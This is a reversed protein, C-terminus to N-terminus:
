YGRYEKRQNYLKETFGGEKMHKEKLSAILRDLLYNEQNILTVLMNLAEDDSSPLRPWDPLDPLANSAKLIKWILNIERIEGNSKTKEWVPIQRKRAASLVDNLLEEFSGRAVGCLKIYGKLSEQQHGEAINQVGSRAAQDVQDPNRSYKNLYREIFQPTLDYIAQALKYVLLSKYPAQFKQYPQNENM